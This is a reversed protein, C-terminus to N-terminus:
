LSPVEISLASILKYATYLLSVILLRNLIRDLKVQVKIKEPHISVLNFNSDKLFIEEERLRAITVTM